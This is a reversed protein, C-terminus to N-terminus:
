VCSHGAHLQTKPQPQEGGEDKRRGGRALHKEIALEAGQWGRLAPTVGGQRSESLLFLGAGRHAQDGGGRVDLVGTVGADGGRREAEVIAEAHRHPELKGGFRVRPGLTGAARQDGEAAVFATELEAKPRVEHKRLSVLREEGM